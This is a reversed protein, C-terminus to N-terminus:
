EVSSMPLQTELQQQEGSSSPQSLPAAVGALHVAWEQFLSNVLRLEQDLLGEANAPVPEMVGTDNGEEDEAEREINWSVLMKGLERFLVEIEAGDAPTDSTVVNELQAIKPLLKLLKGVSVKRMRVELGAFEHDDAFKILFSKKQIYAV